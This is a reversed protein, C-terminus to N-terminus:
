NQKKEDIGIYKMSCLKYHPYKGQTLDASFSIEKFRKLDQIPTDMELRFSDGSEDCLNMFYYKKDPNKKSDVVKQGLVLGRGVVNM